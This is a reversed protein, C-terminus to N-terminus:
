PYLLLSGPCVTDGDWQAERDRQKEEVRTLTRAESLLHQGTVSARFSFDCWNTVCLPFSLSCIAMLAQRHQKGMYNQSPLCSLGKFFYHHPFSFPHAAM